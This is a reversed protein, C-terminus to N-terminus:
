RSKARSYGRKAMCADRVQAVDNVGEGVAGAAIVANGNVKEAPLGKRSRIGANIQMASPSPRCLRKGNM